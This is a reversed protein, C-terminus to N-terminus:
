ITRRNGLVHRLITFRRRSVVTMSSSAYAPLHHCQLEEKGNELDQQSADWPFRLSEHSFTTVYSGRLLAIIPLLCLIVIAAAQFVKVIRIRTGTPMTVNNLQNPAQETQPKMALSTRYTHKIEKQLHVTGNELLVTRTPPLNKFPSESHPM